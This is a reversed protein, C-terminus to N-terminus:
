SVRGQESEIPNININYYQLVQSNIIITNNPWMPLPKSHGTTTITTIQTQTKNAESILLRWHHPRFKSPVAIVLLWIQIM